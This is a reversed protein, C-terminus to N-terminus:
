KFNALQKSYLNQSNKFIDSIKKESYHKHEEIYYEQINSYIIHIIIM